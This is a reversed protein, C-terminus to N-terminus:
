GDGDAARLLGDDRISPAASARTFRATDREDSTVSTEACIMVYVYQSSLYKVPLHDGRGCRM